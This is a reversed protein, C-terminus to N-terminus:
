LLDYKGRCRYQFSFTLMPTGFPDIYTVKRNTTKMVTKSDGFRNSNSLEEDTSVCKVSHTLLAKKATEHVKKEPAFERAVFPISKGAKVRYV